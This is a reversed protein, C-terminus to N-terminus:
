PCTGWVPLNSSVIGSDTNFYDPYSTINTVCWYSLDQNFASANSFNFEMDTVKSTNWSGIDQNFITAGQFMASMNTVAATTVVGLTVLNVKAPAAESHPITSVEPPM